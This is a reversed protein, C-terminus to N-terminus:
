NEQSCDSTYSQNEVLKVQEADLGSLPPGFPCFVPSFPFSFPLLFPLFPFPFPLFPPLFAGIVQFGRFPRFPGRLAAVLFKKGSVPFQQGCQSSPIGCAVAPRVVGRGTRFRFPIVSPFGRTPKGEPAPNPHFERM